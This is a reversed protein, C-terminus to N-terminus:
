KVQFPVAIRGETNQGKEIFTCYLQFRRSEAIVHNFHLTKQIAKEATKPENLQANQPTENNENAPIMKGNQAIDILSFQLNQIGMSPKNQVQVTVEVESETAKAENITMIMLSDGLVTTKPEILKFTSVGETNSRITGNKADIIAQEKARKERLNVSNNNLGITFFVGVIAAAVLLPLWGAQRWTDPKQVYTSVYDRTKENGFVHNIETLKGIDANIQQFAIWVNKEILEAEQEDINKQKFRINLDNLHNINQATKQRLERAIKLDNKVLNQTDFDNFFDLLAVGTQNLKESLILSEIYSTFAGNNGM